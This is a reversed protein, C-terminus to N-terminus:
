VQLIKSQEQPFHEDSLSLSAEIEPVINTPHTSASSPLAATESPLMIASLTPWRLYLVNAYADHADGSEWISSHPLARSPIRTKKTWGMNPAKFIRTYNTTLPATWNEARCLLVSCNQSASPKRTAQRSPKGLKMLSRASRQLQM